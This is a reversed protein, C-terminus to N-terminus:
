GNRLEEEIQEQVEIFTDWMDKFTRKDLVFYDEGDPEFRFALASYSKNQEFAQERAKKLWEKYISFSKQDKTPVKAELFLHQGVHVDGGGFRTGGSNAQVRGKLEKALQKEQKDSYSRTSKM